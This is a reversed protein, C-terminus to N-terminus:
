VGLARRAHFFHVLAHGLTVVFVEVLELGLQLQLRTL